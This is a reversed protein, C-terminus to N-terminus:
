VSGQKDDVFHCFQWALYGWHNPDSLRRPMKVQAILDYKDPYKPVITGDDCVVEELHTCLMARATTLRATLTDQGFFASRKANLRQILDNYGHVVQDLLAKEAGFFECFSKSYSLLLISQSITYMDRPTLNNWTVKGSSPNHEGGVTEKTFRNYWENEANRVWHHPNDCPPKTADDYKIGHVSEGTKKNQWVYLPVCGYPYTQQAQKQVSKSWDAEVITDANPHLMVHCEKRCMTDEKCELCKPVDLRWCKAVEDWDYLLKCGGEVWDDMRKSNQLVISIQSRVLTAMSDVIKAQETPSGGIAKVFAAYELLQSMAAHLRKPDFETKYAAVHAIRCQAYATWFYQSYPKSPQGLAQDIDHVKQLEQAISAASSLSKLSVRLQQNILALQVAPGGVADNLAQLFAHFNTAKLSEEYASESSV